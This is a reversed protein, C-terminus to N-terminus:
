WGYANVLRPNLGALFSGSRVMGGPTNAVCWLTDSFTPCFCFYRLFFFFNRNKLLNVKSHGDALIFYVPAVM